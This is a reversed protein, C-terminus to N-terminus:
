GKIRACLELITRAEEVGGTAEILEVAKVLANEAQGEPSNAKANRRRTAAAKKGAALAKAKTKPGRKKGKPKTATATASDATSPQAQTSRSAKLQQSALSPSFVIGKKAFHKTIESASHNPHKKIFDRCLQSKNVNKKNAM